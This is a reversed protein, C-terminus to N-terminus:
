QLLIQLLKCALAGLWESGINGNRNEGDIVRGPLHEGAYTRSIIDVAAAGALDIHGPCHARGTRREFRKNITERELVAEHVGLRQDLVTRNAEATVRRLIEILGKM